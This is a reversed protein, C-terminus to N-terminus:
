LTNAIEYELKGDMNCEYITNEDYCSQILSKNTERQLDLPTLRPYYSQNLNLNRIKWRNSQRGLKNIQTEKSNGEVTQICNSNDM